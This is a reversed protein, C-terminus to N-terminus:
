RAPKVVDVTARAPASRQGDVFAQHWIEFSLLAFLSRRYDQRGCQHDAILTALVDRELYRASASSPSLLIRPSFSPNGGRLWADIPTVFGRKPRRVMTAPLWRRAARKWLYKGTLGRVILEPPLRELVASLQLDLFPVRMEVGHAMTMRDGYHLLDDALSTRKDVYQLRALSSVGPQAPPLWAELVQGPLEEVTARVEPRLLQNVLADPLRAHIQHFRAREDTIALSRVGRKLSALRPLGEVVGAVVQRAPPPLGAWLRRYREGLYRTYGALHEDAGQGSLAVKVDRGALRALFFLPLASSTSLPEDLHWIAEPLISAYEEASVVIEHHETAFRRATERADVLENADGGEAFGVSYTRVRGSHEAMAGVVAGSDVGGSLFAGIPVDSVM